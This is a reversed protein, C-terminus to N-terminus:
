KKLIRDNAREVENIMFHVTFCIIKILRLISVVDTGSTSDCQPNRQITGIMWFASSLFMLSYGAQVQVM